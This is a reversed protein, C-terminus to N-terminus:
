VNLFALREGPTYFRIDTRAHEWKIRMSHLGKQIWMLFCFWILMTNWHHLKIKSGLSLIHSMRPLHNAQFCSFIYFERDFARVFFADLIYFQVHRQTLIRIFVTGLCHWRRSRTQDFCNTKMQLCQCDRHLVFAFCIYGCVCVCFGSFPFASYVRFNLFVFAPNSDLDQATSSARTCFKARKLSNEDQFVWFHCAVDCALFLFAFNVCM